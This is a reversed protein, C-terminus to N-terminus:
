LQRDFVSLTNVLNTLAFETGRTERAPIRCILGQALFHCSPIVCLM